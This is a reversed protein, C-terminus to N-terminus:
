ARIIRYKKKRPRRELRMAGIGIGWGLLAGGVVDLPYHVGLYIRSLSILIALAYFWVRLKPEERSLIYAFAFALTAHSSPFSFNDASGVIIAGMELSPRPRAVLVKFMYESIIAGMSVVISPLFFWHDRTEERFFLIVAIVLWVAGWTGVGSLLRAAQDLFEPHPLLNILFFVQQDLAILAEMM